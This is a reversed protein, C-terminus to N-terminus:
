WFNYPLYSNKFFHFNGSEKYIIHYLHNSINSFTFKNIFFKEVKKNNKMIFLTKKDKEPESIKILRKLIKQFKQYSEKM